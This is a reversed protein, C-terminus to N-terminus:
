QKVWFVSVTGTIINRQGQPTLKFTGRSDSVVTGVASRDGTIESYWDGTGNPAGFPMELFGVPDVAAPAPPAGPAAYPAPLAMKGTASVAPMLISGPPPSAPDYAPTGAPAVLATSIGPGVAINAQGFSPVWAYGQVIRILDTTYPDWGWLMTQTDLAYKNAIALLVAPTTRTATSATVGFDSADYPLAMFAVLDPPLSAKYAANFALQDQSNFIPSLSQAALSLALALTLALARFTRKM